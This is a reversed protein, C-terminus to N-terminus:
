ALDYIDHRAQCVALFSKQFLAEIFIDGLQVRFTICSTVIQKAMVIDRIFHCNVEIHKM